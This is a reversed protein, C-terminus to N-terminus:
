TISSGTNKSRRSYLISFIISKHHAIKISVSLLCKSMLTSGYAWILCFVFTQQFWIQNLQSQNQIFNKFFQSFINYRQEALINVVGNCDQLINLVAPVLWNVLTEFLAIYIEILEFRKLEDVFCLHSHKWQQDSRSMYVIGCRSVTMPSAYELNDTEFLISMLKTNEIMEGSALCLKQNDDLLTHLSDAWSPDIIGDFIIWGRSQMAATLTIMERFTKALVGTQWEHTMPDVHGYLHSWSISKPNIIRYSVDYEVISGIENAKLYRLTDALIQWATTKRAMTEGVIIIGNRIRIQQYIQLIKRVLYENAQLNRKLLSAKIYDAIPLPNEAESVNVNWFVQKCLANFMKLDVDILKSANVKRIANLLMDSESYDDGNDNSFKRKLFKMELLIIKMARINFDYHKALTLQENCLQHLQVLKRALLKSQKFGNVYFLMEFIYNVDLTLM